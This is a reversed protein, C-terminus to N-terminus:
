SMQYFVLCSVDIFHGIKTSLETRHMVNGVYAVSLYKGAKHSHYLIPVALM